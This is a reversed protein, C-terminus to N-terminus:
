DAGVTDITHELRRVRKELSNFREMIRGTQYILKAIGLFSLGSVIVHVAQIEGVTEGIQFVAQWSDHERARPLLVGARIRAVFGVSFAM